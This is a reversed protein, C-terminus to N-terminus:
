ESTIESNLLKFKIVKRFSSNQLMDDLDKHVLLEQISIEWNNTLQLEYKKIFAETWPICNGAELSDKICIYTNSNEKLLNKVYDPSAFIGTAHILDMRAKHLTKSYFYKNWEEVSKEFFDIVSINEEFEIWQGLHEHSYKKWLLGREIEYFCEIYQEDKSRRIFLWNWDGEWNYVLQWVHTRPNEFNCYSTLLGRFWIRFWENHRQIIGLKREMLSGQSERSFEPQYIINRLDIFREPKLNYRDITSYINYNVTQKHNQNNYSWYFSFEKNKFPLENWTKLCHSIEWENCFVVNNWDTLVIPGESIADLGGPNKIPVYGFIDKYNTNECAAKVKKIFQQNSADTRYYGFEILDDKSINPQLYGAWSLWTLSIYYLKWWYNEHFYETNGSYSLVRKSLIQFFVSSSGGGFSVQIKRTPKNLTEVVTKKNTSILKETESINEKDLQSNEIDNNKEIWM